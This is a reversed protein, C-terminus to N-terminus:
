DVDTRFWNHWKWALIIEVLQVRNIGKPRAANYSVITYETELQHESFFYLNDRWEEVCAHKFRFRNNTCLSWFKSADQATPCDTHPLDIEGTGFQDTSEQRSQSDPSPESEDPMTAAVDNNDAIDNVAGESETESKDVNMEHILSHKGALMKTDASLAHSFMKHKYETEKQERAEDGDLLGNHPTTDKIYIQMVEDLYKTFRGVSYNMTDTIYDELNTGNLNRHFGCQRDIIGPRVMTMCEQVIAFVCPLKEFEEPVTGFKIKKPEPETLTPTSGEAQSQNPSPARKLTGRAIKLATELIQSKAVVGVAIQSDDM